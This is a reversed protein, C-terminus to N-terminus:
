SDLKALREALLDEAVETFWRHRELFADDGVVIARGVARLLILTIDDVRQLIDEDSAAAAAAGLDGKHTLYLRALQAKVSAFAPDAM